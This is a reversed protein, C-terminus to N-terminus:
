NHATWYRVTSPQLCTNGTIKVKAIGRQLGWGSEEGGCNGGLGLNVYSFFTFKFCINKKFNDYLAYHRAKNQKCAVKPYILCYAHGGYVTATIHVSPTGHSLSGSYRLRQLAESCVGAAKRM